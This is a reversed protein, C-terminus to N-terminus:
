YVRGLFNPTKTKSHSHYNTGQVKWDANFRQVSTWILRLREDVIEDVMEILGKANTENDPDGSLGNFNSRM